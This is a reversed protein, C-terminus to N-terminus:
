LVFLFSSRLLVAKDEALTRNGPLHLTSLASTAHKARAENFMPMCSFMEDHQAAFCASPAVYAWPLTIINCAEAQLEVADSISYQILSTGIQMQIVPKCALRCPMHKPLAVHIRRLQLRSSVAGSAAAKDPLREIFVPVDRTLLDAAAHLSSPQQQRAPTPASAAPSRFFRQGQLNEYELGFTVIPGSAAAPVPLQPTDPKGRRGGKRKGTGPRSQQASAAESSASALSPWWCDKLFARYEPHLDAQSTHGQRQKPAPSGAATTPPLPPFEAASLSDEEEVASARASSEAGLPPLELRSLGKSADGMWGHGEQKLSQEHEAPPSVYVHLWKGLEATLSGAQQQKGRRSSKHDSTSDPLSGPQRQRQQQIHAPQSAAFPDNMPSPSPRANSQKGPQPLSGAAHEHLTVSFSAVLGDTGAALLPANAQAPDFPDEVNCRRMGSVDALLYQQGSSHKHSVAENSGNQDKVMTNWSDSKIAPESQSLVAPPLICGIGTMSLAGCQQRGQQWYELCAQRLREEYTPAAPGTAGKQFASLALLLMADHMGEPYADPAKTTYRAFSEAAAQVCATRSAHWIPDTRADLALLAATLRGTPKQRGRQRISPRSPGRQSSITLYDDAHSAAAAAEMAANLQRFSQLWAALTPLPRVHAAAAEPQTSGHLRSVAQQIHQKVHAFTAATGTLAAPAGKPGTLGAYAADFAARLNAEASPVVFAAHAPAEPLSFLADSTADSLLGAAAFESRVQQEILLEQAQVAKAESAPEGNPFVLLLQPPLPGSQAGRAAGHQQQQKSKGSGALSAKRQTSMYPLMSGLEAAADQKATQLDRVRQLLEARIECTDQLWVILHCSLLVQFVAHYSRSAHESNSPCKTNGKREKSPEPAVTQLYLTRSETHFFPVVHLLQHWPSDPEPPLLAGDAPVECATLQSVLLQVESQQTGIVAVVSVAVEM